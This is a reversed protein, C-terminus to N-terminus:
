KFKVNNVFFNPDKEFSPYNRKMYGYLDTLRFVDRDAAIEELLSPFNAEIHEMIKYFYSLRLFAFAIMALKVYQLPSLSKGDTCGFSNEASADKDFLVYKFFLAEGVTLFGAGVRPGPYWRQQSFLDVFRFGEKGLLDFQESFLCQDKYIEFFEVETVVGLITNKLANIAGKQVRLEAGQVDISLFDPPPCMQADIVDDIPRTYVQITKELKCNEGWNKCWPYGPDEAVSLPSPPLLSSSLGGFANVYFDKVGHDEDIASAVSTKKVGGKTVSEMVEAQSDDSRAEFVVLRVKNPFANIFADPPGIEDTGGGVHCMVFEFDM